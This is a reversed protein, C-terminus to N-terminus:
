FLLASVFILLGMGLVFLGFNIRRAAKLLLDITLLSFIFSCGLGALQETHVGNLSFNMVLNGAIVIPISMLFSIRIAHDARYQRFLLAAVTLGSRSLGPLAALGQAIGLLLSDKTQLQATTKLGNHKKILQLTGTILLCFGVLLSILRGSAPHQDILGSFSKLLLLGLLGSILTSWFLFVLLPQQPHQPNRIHRCAKLLEIIDPRFYILAALSSGLHLFLAGKVMEEMPSHSHFVRTKVLILMGESSVPLWEAIGQIVGSIMQEMLPSIM